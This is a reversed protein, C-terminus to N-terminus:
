FTGQELELVFPAAFLIGFLGPLFNLWPVISSHEFRQTFESVSGNCGPARAFCAALGDHDYVSAMHLGIPVLAAAALALLAATLITELRQQRWSLWIVVCGGRASARLDPPRPVRA